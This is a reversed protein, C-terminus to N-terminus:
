RSQLMKGASLYRWMLLTGWPVIKGGVNVSNTIAYGSVSDISARGWERVWRETLPTKLSGISWRGGARM